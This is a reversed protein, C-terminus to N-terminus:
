LHVSIRRPLILWVQGKFVPHSALQKQKKKKKEWDTLYSRLLLVKLINYFSNLSFIIIELATSPSKTAREAHTAAKHTVTGSSGAEGVQSVSCAPGPLCASIQFWDGLFCLFSLLQWGAPKSSFEWLPSSCGGPSWPSQQSTVLWRPCHPVLPGQGFCLKSAIPLCTWTSASLFRTRLFSLSYISLSYFPM